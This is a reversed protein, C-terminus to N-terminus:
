APYHRADARQRRRRAGDRRVASNEAGHVGAPAVHDAGGPAPSQTGGARTISDGPHITAREAYGPRTMRSGNEQDIGSPRRNPTWTRIWMANTIKTRTIHILFSCLSTSPSAVQISTSIPS